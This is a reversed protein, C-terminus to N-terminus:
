FSVFKFLLGCGVMLVRRQQFTSFKELVIQLLKLCTWVEREFIHVHQYLLHERREGMYRSAVGRLFEYELQVLLQFIAFLIAYFAM